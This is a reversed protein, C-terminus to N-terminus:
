GSNGALAREVVAALAAASADPSFHAEVRTRGASGMRARLDADDVLMQLAAAAAAPDGVTVLRGSDSRGDASEGLADRTGPLGTAVVPLGAAM